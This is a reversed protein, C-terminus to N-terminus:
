KASVEVEVIEYSYAEAAEEPNDDMAIMETRWNNGAMEADEETDYLDPFSDCAHGNDWVVRYKTVLEPEEQPLHRDPDLYDNHARSFKSM